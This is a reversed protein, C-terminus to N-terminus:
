DAMKKKKQEFTVVREPRSKQSQVEILSSKRGLGRKANQGVSAACQTAHPHTLTHENIM